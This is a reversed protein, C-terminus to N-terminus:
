ISGVSSIDGSYEVSAVGVGPGTFTHTNSESGSGSAGAFRGTGGTITYSDNADTSTSTCRTVGSGTMTITDGNAATLTTSRTEPSCGNVAHAPNVDIVVTAVETVAGMHTAQGVGTTHICVLAPGCPGATFTESVTASFPVMSDASARAPRLFLAAGAVLAIVVPVLALLFMHKRM